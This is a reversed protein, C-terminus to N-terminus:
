ANRHQKTAEFRFLLASVAFLVAFFGSIGLIEGYSSGPYHQMGALLAIAGVLVVSASAAFMTYEMGRSTFRSLFSGVIVVAVVGGYMLNGPNPGGGILGVALNVFLLLFTSGVASAIAIKPIFGPLHRTIVVYAIGASFLLLGMAVFDAVGWRVEDTFQMAILPLVLVSVTILAIVLIPKARKLM